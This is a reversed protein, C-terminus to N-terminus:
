TSPLAVHRLEEVVFFFLIHLLRTRKPNMYVPGEKVLSRSGASSRRVNSLMSLSPASWRRTTMVTLRDIGVANTAAEMSAKM